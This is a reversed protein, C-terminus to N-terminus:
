WCSDDRYDAYYDPDSFPEQLRTELQAVNKELFKISQAFTIFGSEYVRTAPKFFRREFIIQGEQFDVKLSGTASTEGELNIVPGNLCEISRIIDALHKDETYENPYTWSCSLGYNEKKDWFFYSQVHGNSDFPRKASIEEFMAGDQLDWTRSIAVRESLFHDEFCYNIVGTHFYYDFTSILRVSSSYEYDGMSAEEYEGELGIKKLSREIVESADVIINLHKNKYVGSDNPTENKIILDYLEINQRGEASLKGLAKQYNEISVYAMKPSEKATTNPM